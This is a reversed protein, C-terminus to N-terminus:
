GGKKDPTTKEELDYRELPVNKITIPQGWIESFRLHEEAEEVDPELVITVAKLDSPLSDIKGSGGSVSHNECKGLSGLDHKKGHIELCIKFFISTTGPM